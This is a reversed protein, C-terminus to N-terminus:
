PYVFDYWADEELRDIVEEEDDEGPRPMAPDYSCALRAEHAKVRADDLAVEFVSGM